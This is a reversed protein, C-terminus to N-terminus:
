KRRLDLPLSSELLLGRVSENELGQNVAELSFKVALPAYPNSRLSCRRPAHHDSFRSQVSGREGARNSYGEQASIIKASLILQLAGARGLSTSPLRQAEALVPFSEWDLKLNALSRMKRLRGSDHLAMATKVVAARPCFGNVAAIVPKGLNEILDLV